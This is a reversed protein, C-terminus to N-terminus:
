TTKSYLKLIIKKSLCKSFICALCAVSNIEKSIGHKSLVKTSLNNLDTNLDNRNSFCSNQGDLLHYNSVRETVSDGCMMWSM